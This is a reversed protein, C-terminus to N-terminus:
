LRQSKTIIEMGIGVVILIIIIVGGAIILVNGYGSDLDMTGITSQLLGGKDGSYVNISRATIKFAGIAQSLFDGVIDLISRDSDTGEISSRTENIIQQMDQYNQQIKEFTENNYGQPTYLVNGSMAFINIGLMIVGIVVVGILVNSLKVM